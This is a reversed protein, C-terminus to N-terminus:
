VLVMVIAWAVVAVRATSSLRGASADNEASRWVGVVAILTYPIPSLFLAIAVLDPTEAVQAALAAVSAALNAITGYLIAYVWFARALPLRGALFAKM